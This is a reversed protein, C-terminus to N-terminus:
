RVKRLQARVFDGVPQRRPGPSNAFDPNEPWDITRVLDNGEVRWRGHTPTDSESITGGTALWTHDAKFTTQIRGEISQTEWTGILEVETPSLGFSLSPPWSARRHCGRRGAATQQLAHNPWTM